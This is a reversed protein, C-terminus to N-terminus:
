PTSATECSSGDDGSTAWNPMILEATTPMKTSMPGPRTALWYLLARRDDRWRAAMVLLVGVATSLLQWLLLEAIDMGNV